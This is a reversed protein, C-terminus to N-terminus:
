PAALVARLREPDVPKALHQGFGAARARAVDEPGAYGSLAVLKTAGLGEDNALERAVEYGSLGPLGLDCLVIEPRQERAVRIGEVGDHALEVTHGDLELVARLAEAADVNDEIVLVRRHAHAAAATTVGPLREAAPALPLRVEFMAGRDVGESCARVDGGHLEVLGKVLTLGLGLGGMSRALTRDAQAFPQFLRGIMEPAIGAGTDSVRVVARDASPDRAVEVTTRGGAPTFKVANSLLNGLVQTLRAADGDVVLPEGARTLALLVGRKAFTARHDDVVTAVLADLDVAQRQLQIKERTIRSVDLLDDVLRALQATQREVIGIARQARDSSLSVRELVFLGNQIAALPNRLEHSLVAIFDNKRRDADRLEEVLQRQAALSAQLETESRKRETVDFAVGIVGDVRGRADISPGVNVEFETAGVSVPLKTQQGALARGFADRFGPLEAYMDLASRGVVEGPSLGLKELALGESLTFVGNVDLAFLVVPASVVVTHLLDSARRAAEEARKRETIDLNTGAMSIPQGRVDYSTRTRGYFVRVEGDPRVVRYECECEGAELATAYAHQFAARDDAHILKVWLSQDVPTGVEVGHLRYQEESWWMAGTTLDARWAGLKALRQAEVLRQESARLADDVALRDTVDHGIALLGIVNDEGDRLLEDTWEIQREAGTRTVLPNINGRVRAGAMSARFAARIRDHDRRPSFTDFWEKGRLEDLRYGALQEFYPNAYRIAGYADLLLIVVPAAELVRAGLDVPVASASPKAEPVGRGGSM